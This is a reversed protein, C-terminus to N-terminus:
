SNFLRSYLREHVGQVVDIAPCTSGVAGEDWIDRAMAEKLAGALANRVVDQLSALVRQALYPGVLNLRVSSSLLSRSHLFLHLHLSDALGLELCRSVIGFCIPLHGPSEDRRLALKFADFVERLAHKNGGPDGPSGEILGKKEVAQALSVEAFSKSFLMLMAGGQTSSARRAVASSTSAEYLRDLRVLTETACLIRSAFSSAVTPSSEPADDARIEGSEKRVSRHECQVVEGVVEDVARWAHEVFPVTSYAYTHISSTLFRTLSDTDTARVLGTAVAAELGASAVFGGTPLASDALQYLLWSNGPAFPPIPSNRPNM